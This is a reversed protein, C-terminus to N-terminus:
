SQFFFFGLVCAFFAEWFYSYCELSTIVLLALPSLLTHDLHRGSSFFYSIFVKFLFKFLKGEILLFLLAFWTKPNCNQSTGAYLLVSCNVAARRASWLDVNIYGLVKGCGNRIYLFYLGQVTQHWSQESEPLSYLCLVLEYCRMRM